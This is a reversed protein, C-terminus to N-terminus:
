SDHIGRGLKKLLEQGSDATLNSLDVTGPSGLPNAGSTGRSGSSPTASTPRRNGFPSQPTGPAAAEQQARSLVGMQSAAVAAAEYPWNPNGLAPDDTAVLREYQEQVANFLDSDENELQPYMDVASDAADDWATSFQQEEHASASADAERIDMQAHLKNEQLDFRKQMLEDAKELEGEARAETIEKDLSTIEENVQDLAQDPRYQDQPEGQPQEAQGQGGGLESQAQSLPINHASAYAVVLRDAEPLNKIRTRGSDLIGQTRADLTNGDGSDTPSGTQEGDAGASVLSVSGDENIQADIDQAETAGAVGDETAGAEDTIDLMVTIENCEFLNCCSNVKYICPNRYPIMPFNDSFLRNCHNWDGRSANTVNALIMLLLPSIM